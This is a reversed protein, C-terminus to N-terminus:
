SARKSATPLTRPNSECARVLGVVLPGISGEKQPRDQYVKGIVTFVCGESLLFVGRGFLVALSGFYRPLCNFCGMGLQLETMVILAAAIFLLLTLAIIGAALEVAQQCSVTASDVCETKAGDIYSATDAVAFLGVGFLSLGCCTSYIRLAQTYIRSCRYHALCCPFTGAQVNLSLM